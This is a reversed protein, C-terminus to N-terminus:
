SRDENSFVEVRGLRPIEIAVVVLDRRLVKWERFLRDINEM